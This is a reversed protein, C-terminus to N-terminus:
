LIKRAWNKGPKTMLNAFTGNRVIKGFKALKYLLCPLFCFVCLFIKSYVKFQAEGVLLVFHSPASNLKRTQKNWCAEKPKDDAGLPCKLELSQIWAM